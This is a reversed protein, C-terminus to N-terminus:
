IRAGGITAYTEFEPPDLIHKKVSCAGAARVVPGRYREPFDPPLVIEVSIKGIMKKEPDTETRMVVRIGDTPINRAQCFGLVYYGSCAALSGLFLDFPTPASATAGSEAPQDTEIRFERVRAEVKRGGTFTVAIEMKVGGLYRKACLLAIM